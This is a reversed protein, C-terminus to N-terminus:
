GAARPRTRAALAVLAALVPGVVLPVPWLNGVDPVPLGALVWALAVANFAFAAPGPARDALVSALVGFILAEVIRDPLSGALLWTALEGEDVGGVLVLHRVVLIAGACLLGVVLQGRSWPAADMAAWGLRDGPGDDRATDGRAAESRRSGGRLM